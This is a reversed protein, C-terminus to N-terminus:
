MTFRDRITKPTIRNPISGVINLCPSISLPKTTYWRNRFSHAQRDQGWTSDRFVAELGKMIEPWQSLIMLTQYVSTLINVMNKKFFKSWLSVTILCISPTISYTNISYNYHRGFLHFDTGKEKSINTFPNVNSPRNTRLSQTGKSWNFSKEWWLEKATRARNHIRRMVKQTIKLYTLMWGCECMGRGILVFIIKWVNLIALATTYNKLGSCLVSSFTYIKLSLFIPSIASASRFISFICWPLWSGQVSAEASLRIMTFHM